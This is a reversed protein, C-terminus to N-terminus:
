YSEPVTTVGKTEENIWDIIDQLADLHNIESEVYFDFFCLWCFALYSLIFVEDEENNSYKRLSYLFRHVVGFLKASCFWLTIRAVLKPQYKVVIIWFRLEQIMRVV